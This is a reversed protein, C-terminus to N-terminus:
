DCTIAGSLSVAGALVEVPFNPSAIPASRRCSLTPHNASLEYMGPACNLWIATGTRINTAQTDPFIGGLETYLPGSECGPNASAASAQAAGATSKMNVVISGRTADRTLSAASHFSDWYSVSAIPLASTVGGYQTVDIPATVSPIFGLKSIEVSVDAVHPVNLQYAGNGASTTTEADPHRRLTLTAGGVPAANDARGVVGAFVQTSVCEGGSCMGASPTDPTSCAAGDIVADCSAAGADGGTNTGGSSGTGASSGGTSSTGASSGGSGSTASAASGGAGGAGASGGSSHSPLAHCAGARCEGVEAHRLSCPSGDIFHACAGVDALCIDAQACHTRTPCYGGGCIESSPAQCAGLSLAAALAVGSQRRAKLASM